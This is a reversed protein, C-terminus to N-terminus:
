ESEVECITVADTSADAHHTADLIARCRATDTVEPLSDMDIEDLWALHDRAAVHTALNSEETMQTMEGDAIRVYDWGSGEPFIIYRGDINETAKM